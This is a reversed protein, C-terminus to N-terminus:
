FDITSSNERVRKLHGERQNRYNAEEEERLAKEEVEQQYTHQLAIDTNDYTVVFHPTNLPYKGAIGVFSIRNGGELEWDAYTEFFSFDQKYNPKGGNMAEWTLSTRIGVVKDTYREKLTNINEFVESASMSKETPDGYKACLADYINRAVMPSETMWRITHIISDPYTYIFVEVPSVTINDLDAYGKITPSDNVYVCSNSPTPDINFLKLSDVNLKEGIQAGMFTLPEAKKSCAGFFLMLASLVVAFLFKTKMGAFIVIKRSAHFYCGGYFCTSGM